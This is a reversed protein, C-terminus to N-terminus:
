DNLSEVCLFDTEADPYRNAVAFGGFCNRDIIKMRRNHYGLRM